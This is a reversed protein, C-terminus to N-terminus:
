CGLGPRAFHVMSRTGLSITNGAVIHIKIM